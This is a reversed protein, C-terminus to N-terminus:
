LVVIQGDPYAGIWSCPWRGAAYWVLLDTFFGPQDILHEIAAWALDRKIQDLVEPVVGANAGSADFQPTTLLQRDFYRELRDYLSQHMTQSILDFTEDIIRDGLRQQAIQELAVTQASWVHHYGAGYSDYASALDAAVTLTPHPEGAHALWDIPGIRTLFADLQSQLTDSLV